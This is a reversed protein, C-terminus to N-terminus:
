RRTTEKISGGAACMHARAVTSDLMATSMAPARACYDHLEALIRREEWRAFRKYVSNWKGYQEPLARWQAGTRLIWYVALVFRRCKEENGAYVRTHAQLFGYLRQGKEPAIPITYMGGTDCLRVRLEFTM